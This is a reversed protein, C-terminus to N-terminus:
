DDSRGEPAFDLGLGYLYDMAITWDMVTWGVGPRRHGRRVRGRHRSETSTGPRLKGNRKQRRPALSGRGQLLSLVRGRSLGDECLLPVETSRGM